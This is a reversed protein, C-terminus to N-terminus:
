ARAHAGDGPGGAAPPLDPREQPLRPSQGAPPRARGGRRGEGVDAGGAPPHGRPAEGHLDDAGRRAGARAGAGEHAAGDGGHRRQRALAAAGRRGAADGRAPPRGDLPPGARRAARHQDIRTAPAPRQADPPERRDARAAPGINAQKADRLREETARWSRRHTASRCTWSHRPRRPGRRAPARRRTWSCRSSGTPSGSPRRPPVISTRSSSATSGRTATRRSRRRSRSRSSIRGSAPLRWTWRRPRWARWRRRAVRALVQRSLLQQSIARVREDHDMPGASQALDSSVAPAAIGVTASSLYEKPLFLALSVGVVIALVLPVIFWWKRRRVVSLYDLPHFRPEDM